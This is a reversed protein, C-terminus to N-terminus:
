WGGDMVILGFFVVVAIFLIIWFGGTFVFWPARTSNKKYVRKWYDDREVEANLKEIREVLHQIETQERQVKEEKTLINKQANQNVPAGCESCFNVGDNLKVGCNSCFAM